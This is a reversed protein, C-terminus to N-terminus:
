RAQETKEIAKPQVLIGQREYRKRARSFKVVVAFKTSHKKESLTPSVYHTRYAKEIQSDGSESFQLERKPGNTRALYAIEKPTLGNAAIWRYFCETALSIKAPNGQIMEELYPIRGKRWDQVHVYQLLRMGVFVDIISVYHQNHLAEEAAKIVRQEINTQNSM